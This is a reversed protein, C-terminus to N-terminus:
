DYWLNVDVGFLPERLDVHVFDKDTYVGIHKFGILMCYRSLAYASLKDTTIDCANGTLHQSDAVGGVATNHSACRCASTIYIPENIIYRVRQLMNAMCLMQLYSPTAGCGCKCAFEDSDFNKTLKM